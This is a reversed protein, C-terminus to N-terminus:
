QGYYIYNTGAPEEHEKYTVEKLTTDKQSIYMKGETVQGQLVYFQQNTTASSAGYIASIFANGTKLQTGLTSNLVNNSALVIAIGYYESPNKVPRINLTSGVITGGGAAGGTQNYQKCEVLNAALTPNGIQAFSHSTTQPVSTIDTVQVETASGVSFGYSHGVPMKSVIDFTVGTSTQVVNQIEVFRTNDAQATDTGVLIAGDFIVDNCTNKIDMNYLGASLRDIEQTYVDNKGTLDQTYVETGSPDEVIVKGLVGASTPPLTNCNYSVSGASYQTTLEFVNYDYYGVPLAIFQGSFMDPSTNKPTLTGTTYRNDVNIKLLYAYVVSGSMDNTIEFLLAVQTKAVSTDIRNDETSIYVSQETNPTTYDLQIM